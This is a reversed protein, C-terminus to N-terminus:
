SKANRKRLIEVRWSASPSRSHEGPHIPSELRPIALSAAESEEPPKQRMAFRKKHFHRRPDHERRRDAFVVAPADARRLLVLALGENGSCVQFRNSGM